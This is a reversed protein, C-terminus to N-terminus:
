SFRHCVEEKDRQLAAKQKKMEEPRVTKSTLGAVQVVSAAAEAAGAKMSRAKNTKMKAARDQEPPPIAVM